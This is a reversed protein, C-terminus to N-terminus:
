QISHYNISLKLVEIIIKRINENKYDPIHPTPDMNPLEIELNVNSNPFDTIDILGYKKLSEYIELSMESNIMLEEDIFSTTLVRSSIM